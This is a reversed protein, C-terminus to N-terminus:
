CPPSATFGRLSGTFHRGCDQHWCCAQRARVDGFFNGDRRRDCQFWVMERDCHWGFKWRRRSRPYFPLVRGIRQVCWDRNRLSTVFTRGLLTIYIPSYGPSGPYEGFYVPIGGRSVWTGDLPLAWAAQACLWNWGFNIDNGERQVRDGIRALNPKRQNWTKRRKMPNSSYGLPSQALFTPEQQWAAMLGSLLGRLEIWCFRM